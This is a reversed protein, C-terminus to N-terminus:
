ETYRPRHYANLMVGLRIPKMGKGDFFYFMTNDDDLMTADGVLGYINPHIRHIQFMQPMDSRIPHHNSPKNNGTTHLHWVCEAKEINYETLPGMFQVSYGNESKKYAIEQIQHGNLGTIGLQESGPRARRTEIKGALIVMKEVMQEVDAPDMMNYTLKTGDEDKANKVGEWDVDGDDDRYDDIDAYVVYVGDDYNGDKDCLDVPEDTLPVGNEDIFDALGSPDLYNVPNNRCYHYPTWAYYMEWMPDISTFRGIDSSYKRAGFDGLQSEVDKEKGIFGLRSQRDDTISNMLTTKGGNAFFFNRSVMGADNYEDVRFTSIVSGLHNTVNYEKVWEPDGGPVESYKWSIVPVRGNGFINYEAPYLYCEGGGDWASNHHLSVCSITEDFPNRYRVWEDHTRFGMYVAHQLNNADMLYYVVPNCSGFITLPDNSNYEVYLKTERQGFPNYTYQWENITQFDEFRDFCAEFHDTYDSVNRDGLYSNFITMKKILGNHDYFYKETERKLGLLDNNKTYNIRRTM